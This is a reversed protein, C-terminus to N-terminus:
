KDKEHQGGFKNKINNIADKLANPATVLLDNIDKIKVTAPSICFSWFDLPRKWKEIHCYNYAAMKADTGAKDADLALIIKPNIKYIKKLWKDLKQAGGIAWVNPYGVQILSLADIEGETVIIPLHPNMNHTHLCQSLGRSRKYKPSQSDIPTLYRLIFGLDDIPIVLANQTPHYTLHYANM